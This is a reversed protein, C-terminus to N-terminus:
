LSTEHKIKKTEKTNKEEKKQDYFYKHPSQHLLQFLKKVRGRTIDDKDWRKFM